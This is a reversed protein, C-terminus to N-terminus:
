ALDANEVLGGRELFPREMSNGVPAIRLSGQAASSPPISPREGSLRCWEGLLLEGERASRTMRPKAMEKKVSALTAKGPEKKAKKRM